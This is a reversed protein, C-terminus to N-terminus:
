ARAAGSQGGACAIAAAVGADQSITVEYLLAAFLDADYERRQTVIDFNELALRRQGLTGLIQSFRALHGQKPITAITGLAELVGAVFGHRTETGGKYLDLRGLGLGARGVLDDIMGHWRIGHEVVLNVSRNAALLRVVEDRMSLYHPVPAGLTQGCQGLLKDWIAEAARDSDSRLDSFFMPDAGKLADPVPTADRRIPLVKHHNFGPDTAVARTMERACPPSAAYAASLVLVHKDALDQTADMQRHVGGGPQFRGSDILVEAGSAKLSPVLRDRVWDGDVHSYSVFVKTM